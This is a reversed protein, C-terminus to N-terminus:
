PLFSLKAPASVIDPQRELRLEPEANLPPQIPAPRPANIKRGSQPAVNVAAAAALVLLLLSKSM